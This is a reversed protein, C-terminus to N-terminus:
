VELGLRRVAKRPKHRYLRRAERRLQKQLESRRRAIVDVLKDFESTSLRGRLRDVTVRLVALDHDEGIVDSLDSARSALKTARKPAAPRVLESMYWLDKVRKRLEHLAEDGPEVEAARQAKRGRRYARRLGTGLEALELEDLSWSPTRARAARLDCLVEGTTAEGSLKAHAATREKRLAARLAGFDDPSIEDGYREGLADLTALMVESDRAGSLRRSADRFAANEARYTEDGLADRALRLSSRVRKLSKRAGHVAEAMADGEAAALGGTAKDLRGRVVGRLSAAVGDGEDLRYPPPGDPWGEVALTRNAYRDDGTVERGLWPPPVFAESAEVSDFEVEAVVLGSLEGGYVDLELQAGDVPLVHRAKEIRRGETVPWLREFRRRGIDVEEERRVLGSGQKVTLTARGARKRIRVEVGAPDVALYGQQIREAPIGSLDAPPENVLFKREIEM